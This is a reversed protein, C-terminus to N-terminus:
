SAANWNERAFQKCDHASFEALIIQGLTNREAASEPLAHNWCCKECFWGQWGGAMTLILKRQHRWEM